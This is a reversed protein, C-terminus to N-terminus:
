KVTVFRCQQNQSSPLSGNAFIDVITPDEDYDVHATMPNVFGFGLVSAEKAVNISVNTVTPCMRSDLYKDVFKPPIDYSLIDNPDSFAVIDVGAFARSAYKKGSPLCYDDYQGVVKPADDGIQLIPLQNAMMFVLFRNDQMDKILPKSKEPLREKALELEALIDEFSDILIKSGLSHTIFIIKEHELNALQEPRSIKCIESSNQPLSDWSYGLMWCDAQKLSDLIFVRDKSLYILPDPITDNLFKKVSQNFEARKYAYIKSSDYALLDRQEQTIESWTLEYFLMEKSSDQNQYRNVWLTGIGKDNQEPSKLKFEKPLRSAVNLGLKKALSEQLRTSYGPKHSGVGHVMLVKVTDDNSFYYNIGEFNRGKIECYSNKQDDKGKDLFASAVGRGFSTCGCLAFLLLIIYKKM